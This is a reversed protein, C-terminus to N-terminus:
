YIKRVSDNRPNGLNTTTNLVALKRRSETHNVVLLCARINNSGVFGLKGLKLLPWNKTKVTCYSM